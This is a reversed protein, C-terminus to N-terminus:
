SASMSNILNCIFEVGGRKIQKEFDGNFKYMIVFKKRSKYKFWGNGKRHELMRRIISNSKGCYFEGRETKLIYTQMM